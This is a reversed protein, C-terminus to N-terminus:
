PCVTPLGTTPDICKLWNAAFEVYDDLTTGGETLWVSTFLFLDLNDVDCDFDLDGAFAYYECPPITNFRWLKSQFTEGPVASDSVVVLWYYPTNDQLTIPVPFSTGIVGSYKTMGFDPITMNPETGFYVDNTLVSATSNPDFTWSLESVTTPVSEWNEPSPDYPAKPAEISWFEIYDYSIGGWSTLIEVTNVGLNLTVDEYIFDEYIANTGPFSTDGPDAPVGNIKIKDGRAGTGNIRYRITMDFTGAVPSEFTMVFSGRDAGTWTTWMLRNESANEDMQVEPATTGPIITGEEAEIRLSRYYEIVTVEITAESVNNSGDTVSLKLTHLGLADFVFEPDLLTPDACIDNITVGGPGTELTWAYSLGPKGQDTVTPKLWISVTRKVTKSEDLTIEPAPDDTTFSWVYGKFLTDVGDLPVTSDVIWYYDKEWELTVPITTDLTDDAILPLGYDALLLNPEKTGLYVDCTVDSATRPDDISHKRWSLTNGDVLVVDGVEPDPHTATPDNMNIEFYDYDIGGYSTLIRITNVGENLSIDEVVKDEFEGTGPYMIDAGGNIVTGNIEVKDGREADGHKYRVTLDYMGAAPAKVQFSFSGRDTGSHNTWMIKGEDAAVDNRIEPASDAGPEITADEAQYRTRPRRPVSYFDWLESTYDPNSPYSGPEFAVVQWYYRLGELLTLDVNNTVGSFKTTNPNTLFNNPDTGLYVDCIIDSGAVPDAISHNTWSLWNGGFLVDLNDGSAPFPDTPAFDVVGGIIKVVYNGPTDTNFQIGFRKVLTPDIITHTSTRTQGAGLVHWDGAWSWSDTSQSFPQLVYDVSGPNELEVVFLNGNASVDGGPWPYDFQFIDITGAATMTINVSLGPDGPIDDVSTVQAARTASLWDADNLITQGKAASFTFVAVFVLSIIINRCM